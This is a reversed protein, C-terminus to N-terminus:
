CAAPELIYEASTRLSGIYGLVYDAIEYAQLGSFCRVEKCSKGWKNACTINRCPAQAIFSRSPAQQATGLHGRKQSDYGYINSDGSGFVTVVATRNRLRAQRSSDVKRAAAIHVPGTDSSLFVDCKDVLAAYVGASVPPVIVVKSRFSEPVSARLINEIGTLVRGPGLLIRDVKESEALKRLTRIQLLLPMQTYRMAADPNFFLIRDLPNIQNRLLFTDAVDIDGPNVCISNGSYQPPSSHDHEGAALNNHRCVLPALMSSMLSHVVVSLHRLSNQQASLFVLDSALPIYMQIVSASTKFIKQPIFPSFNLILSYQERKLIAQLADLDDNAPVGKGSLINFVHNASTLGTLLEGSIRNCVYDIQAHPFCWRLVKVSPYLLIADGLNVDAVILVKVFHKVRNLKSKYYWRYASHVFKNGMLTQFATQFIAPVRSPSWDTLRDLAYFAYKSIGKNTM